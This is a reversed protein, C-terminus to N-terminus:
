LNYTAVEKGETNLVQLSMTKGKKRLVMMTATEQEPGGGIAVPFPNGMKGTPLFEHQHTHANLMVRFDAKEMVPAWLETCPHYQDLHSSWLPIHGIAVRAAAKRFAKSKVEEQLFNAEEQRLGTFDNLGYYVWTDDPKDEGCDLIVIRTDGWNFASYTRGGPLQTLSVMGASYANRIEHNGRILLTPHSAAEFRDTLAHIMDIAHARDNPEPFCDGNFVVFDHPIDKALKAFAQITPEYAHLDNLVLATFDSEDKRPLKFTFFPTREEEGFKKSYSKYETIEQACVRYYYTRGPELSDLVIANEIDHCLEQGAVLTRARRLQVTDTGFEVRCHARRQTQFMVTIADPQPNQLYPKGQFLSQADASLGPVALALACFTRGLISTKM